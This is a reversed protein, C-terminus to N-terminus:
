DTASQSYPSGAVGSLAKAAKQEIWWGIVAELADVTVPTDEERFTEDNGVELVPHRILDHSGPKATSFPTDVASLLADLDGRFEPRFRLEAIRDRIRYRIGLGPVTALHDM